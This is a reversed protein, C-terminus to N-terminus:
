YVFARDGVVQVVSQGQTAEETWHKRDLQEGFHIMARMPWLLEGKAGQANERVQLNRKLDHLDRIESVFGAARLQEIRKRQSRNM